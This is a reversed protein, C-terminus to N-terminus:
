EEVEFARLPSASGFQSRSIVPHGQEFAFYSDYRKAELREEDTRSPPDLDHPAPM